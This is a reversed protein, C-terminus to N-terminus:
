LFGWGLPWVSAAMAQFSGGCLLLLSTALVRGVLAGAYRVVPVRAVALWLAAVLRWGEGAPAARWAGAM